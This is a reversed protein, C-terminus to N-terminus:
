LLTLKTCKGLEVPISGELKNTYLGSHLRLSSHVVVHSIGAMSEEQGEANSVSVSGDDNVQAQGKDIM